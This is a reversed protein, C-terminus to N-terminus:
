RETMDAPQRIAVLVLCLQAALYTTMILFSPRWLGPDPIFRNIALLSDSAVFLAGGVAAIWGAGSAYAAMTGLIAGYVVVPILLSDLHPLLIVVLSAFWVAYLSSLRTPRVALARSFLAIYALHACLFAVLGIVFSEEGPLNLIIDGAWSFALGLALFVQVRRPQARGVGVAVLALTPILAIKTSDAVDVLCFFQAILHVASVFAFPIAWLLAERPIRM